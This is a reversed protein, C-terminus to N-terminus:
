IGGARRQYGGFTRLPSWPPSIPPLAPTTVHQAFPSAAYVHRGGLVTLVSEIHPIEEEPVSFYDASLVAFDALQGPAIRGKIQEEGTFWASGETYLRLAEERTLRNEPPYLVTGGLTRGTVLWHLCLWPNHGSVRTADTGAGLPIGSAILMRLPPAVAAAAQGYREIFYEGAFAMRNQLAIGGGLAKLRALSDATITEAHDIAIRALPTRANTQEFVDLMRRISEDYTAHIRIPWKHEALLTVIPALDAEMSPALEPRPALFNEYDAASATLNEGAGRTAYEDLAKAATALRIREAQTWNRYQQLERGTDGAFLYMGVRVTLADTQALHDSPAYDDPFLHGGGGPDVVSTVGFRNLERYFHMSSNIQDEPSLSPLTAVTRYLIVPSPEAHLIAGGDPTIEIRSGPPPETAATIGLAEVGARNLYGKSYLFLVFVPTKPAIETFEAPTPLRRERFQYPSWGGIVRVWQGSPTRLAQLRIMELGSALSDVGDWRLETNYFRGARTAHIHSDNLGPILRRNRADVVETDPGILREIAANAGVAIFRGDKVALAQAEAPEALTTVRANLVVLDAADALAAASAQFGCALITVLRLYSLNM